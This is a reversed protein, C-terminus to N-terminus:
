TKQEIEIFRAFKCCKKYVVLALAQKKAKKTGGDPSPALLISALLMITGLLLICVTLLFVKKPSQRPKQKKAM